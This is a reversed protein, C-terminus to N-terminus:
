IQVRNSRSTTAACCLPPQISHIISQVTHKNLLRSFGSSSAAAAAFSDDYRPPIAPPLAQGYPHRHILALILALIEITESSLFLFPLSFTLSRQM